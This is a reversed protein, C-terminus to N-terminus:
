NSSAMAKAYAWKAGFALLGYVILASLTVLFLTTPKSV